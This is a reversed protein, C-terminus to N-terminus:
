PTIDTPPSPLDGEVIPRLISPLAAPLFSEQSSEVEALTWWRSGRFALAELYELGTPSRIEDDSTWAVHIVEDQEFDIGGFRFRADQSFVVPGITVDAFGGEELLERAACEASTEGAEIGGGPIEWWPEKTSDAPDASNILFIEGSRSLLITRAASRRLIPLM